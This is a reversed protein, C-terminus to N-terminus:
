LHDLAQPGFYWTEIKKWQGVERERKRERVGQWGLIFWTYRRCASGKKKKKKAKWTKWLSKVSGVCENKKERSFVAQKTSQKLWIYKCKRVSISLDLEFDWQLFIGDLMANEKWKYWIWEQFSIHQM